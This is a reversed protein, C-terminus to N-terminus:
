DFGILDNFKIEDAFNADQRDLKIGMSDLIIPTQVLRLHQEPNLLVANFDEIYNSLEQSGITFQIRSAINALDEELSPRAKATATRLRTMLLDREQLQSLKRLEIRNKVKGVLSDFFSRAVKEGSQVESPAPNEITRSTFYIAKQIVDRHITQGSLEM